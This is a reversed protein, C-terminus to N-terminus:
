DVLQATLIHRVMSFPVALDYIHYTVGPESTFLELLRRSLIM